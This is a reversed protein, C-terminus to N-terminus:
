KETPRFDFQIESTDTSNFTCVEVAKCSRDGRGGSSSERQNGDREQCKGGVATHVICTLLLCLVMLVRLARSDAVKLTQEPAARAM